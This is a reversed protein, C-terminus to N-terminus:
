KINFYGDNNIYFTKFNLSPMTFLPIKLVDFKSRYSVLETINKEFSLKESFDAIYDYKYGHEKAWNIFKIIGLNEVEKSDSFIYKLEKNNFEEM